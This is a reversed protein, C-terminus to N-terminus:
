QDLELKEITQKQGNLTSRLSFVHSRREVPWDGNFRAYSMRTASEALGTSRSPTISSKKRRLSGLLSSKPYRNAVIGFEQCERVATVAVINRNSIIIYVALCYVCLRHLAYASRSISLPPSAPTVVEILKYKYTIAPRDKCVWTILDLTPLSFVLNPLKGM